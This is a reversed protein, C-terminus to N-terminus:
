HAARLSTTQAAAAGRCSRFASQAPYLPTSIEGEGEGEGRGEGKPLPLRVHGAQTQRDGEGRLSLSGYTGRRLKDIGREGPSLAPTLPRKETKM